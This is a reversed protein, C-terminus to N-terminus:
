VTSRIIEAIEEITSKELEPYIPLSLVERAAKEAVPFDGEKYGWFRLAGQLHLPVPYYIVSSIGNEKLRKQIENRRQSRITYQHFVHYAGKREVPCKVVDSLLEAYLAAKQRRKRNYEDIRKLKVLLIGAQIEDLRSNFGAREHIYSGKSGHNRLRRVIDAVKSDDLVIIGGDGYGGLNKSPYFSFCGADGFGGARRGNLDAGFSQACDEIVKLGYRGAIKLIEEMDAMHGFLHVPLIAKTKETIKIDIQSVDLNFTDPEIDVFVPKAGTYLIAEVTAFFTFPTTIVEDGEGIGLADISLHLADTGSAVGVAESVGHYDAIKKEFESVKPGLIYQGSKLIETLVNLVEDKIEQFQKKLDVMPVMKKEEIVKKM